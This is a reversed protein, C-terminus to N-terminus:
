EPLESLSRFDTSPDYTAERITLALDVWEFSVVIIWFASTPAQAACASAVLLCLPFAARTARIMARVRPSTSSGFASILRSM